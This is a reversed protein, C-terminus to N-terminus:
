ETLPIAFAGPPLKLRDCLHLRQAPTLHTMKGDTVFHLSEDKCSLCDKAVVRCFARCGEVSYQEAVLCQLADAKPHGSMEHLDQIVRKARSKPLVKRGDKWLNRGHYSYARADRRRFDRLRQGSYGAPIRGVSLFLKLDKYKQDNM